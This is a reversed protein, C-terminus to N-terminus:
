LRRANNNEIKIKVWEGFFINQRIKCKKGIEVRSSIHCFLHTSNIMSITINVIGNLLNLSEM